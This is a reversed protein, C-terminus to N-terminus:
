KKKEKIIPCDCRSCKSLNEKAFDEITTGKPIDLWNKKKCNSCHIEIQYNEVMKLKPKKFWEM